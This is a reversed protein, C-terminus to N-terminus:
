RKLLLQAKGPELRVHGDSYPTIHGTAPDWLEFSGDGLPYEKGSDTDNFYFRFEATAIKWRTPANESPLNGTLIQLGPFRKRIEPNDSPLVLTQYEAGSPAVLKGDRVKSIALADDNIYDYDVTARTPGDAWRSYDFIRFM